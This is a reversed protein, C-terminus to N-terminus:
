FSTPRAVARTLYMLGTQFETAGMAAWSAPNAKPHNEGPLAPSNAIHLRVEECLADLREGEAKIKNMLDVEAKTLDRYGTIKEHQNDM